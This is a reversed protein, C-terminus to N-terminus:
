DARDPKVLDEICLALSAFRVRLYAEGPQLEQLMGPDQLLRQRRVGELTLRRDGFEVRLVDRNPPPGTVPPLREEGESLHRFKVSALLEALTALQDPTLRGQRLPPGWESLGPVVRWEGGPEIVVIEGDPGAPTNRIERLKLPSLLQRGDPTLFEDPGEGAARLAGRLGSAALILSPALVGGFLLLPPLILLAGWAWAALRSRRRHRVWYTLLGVVPTLVIAGPQIWGGYSGFWDWWSLSWLWGLLGPLQMNIDRAMSRQVLLILCAWFVALWLALWSLLLLVTM